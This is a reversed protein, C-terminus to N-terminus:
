TWHPLLEMRIICDIYINIANIQTGSWTAVKDYWRLSYIYYNSIKQWKFYIIRNNKGNELAENSEVTLNHSTSFPFQTWVSVLCLSGTYLTPKLGSPLYKALPDNSLHTWIQFTWTLQRVLSKTWEPMRFQSAKITKNAFCLPQTM